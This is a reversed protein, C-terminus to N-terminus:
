MANLWSTFDVVRDPTAPSSQQHSEWAPSTPAYLSQQEPLEPLVETIWNRWVIFRKGSTIGRRGTNYRDILEEVQWSGLSHLYAASVWTRDEDNLHCVWYEVPRRPHQGTTAYKRRRGAIGYIDDAPIVTHGDDTSPPPSNSPSPPVPSPPPPVNHNDLLALLLELIPGHMIDPILLPSAILSTLDYSPAHVVHPVSINNQGPYETPISSLSSLTSPTSVPTDLKYLYFTTPHLDDYWSIDM